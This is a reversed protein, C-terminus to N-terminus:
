GVRRFPRSCGWSLMLSISMESMMSFAFFCCPGSFTARSRMASILFVMSISEFSNSSNSRCSVIPTIGSQSTSSRLLISAASCSHSLSDGAEGGPLNGIQEILTGRQCLDLAPEVLQRIRLQPATAVEVLPITAVKESQGLPVRINPQLRELEGGEGLKFQFEAGSVNAKPAVVRLDRNGRGRPCGRRGVGKPVRHGLAARGVVADLGVRRPGERGVHRCALPIGEGAINELDRGVVQLALKVFEVKLGDVIEYVDLMRIM